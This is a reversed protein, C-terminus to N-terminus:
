ILKRSVFLKKFDDLLSYIAPVVFLTLITSTILGGIVAHAMPARLETGAGTALALPIMGFIMALSTMLIPRLRISGALALAQHKQMGEERKQKTFDILLIANKAVLGMLMIIGILSIISLQSEAIYLGLVAGIMAMPLAFMISIPDLFSEFQAAMVLFIFLIGIGLAVALSNFGEQMTQNMGGLSINVGAPREMENQLKKIYLNIFDGKAMGNVNASLEIQMKRDYRHLSQSSSTFTKSVVQNLPVMHNNAGPVYIGALSDLDKRQEDKMSVRLDYRDEGNDFKGVNIGNYFTRIIDGVLAVNVGLDAAKDRDVQLTVEPQGVKYNLAVDVAHPDQLMTNKAKLAFDLIDNFNEGTINFASDKQGSPGISSPLVAVEIGAINKLDDRIIQAIVKSSKIREKKDVLKVFVNTSAKKTTVYTYKVEKYLLLKNEIDITKNTIGELTLGSDMNLVVDIEGNDTSPVFDFGLLPVLTLSGLFLLIAIVTVLLRARLVKGLLKGYGKAMKDFNTNFWDLFSWLFFNSGMHNIKLMKSAMMPVITFSVFLSVIMSCAVTLGFEVFFRGIMGEVMAVPLFVAVVALTTALVALGIESTAEKAAEIASKGMHLHRVINEVVVIADDILLGVALSLAMLSLTNLSFNMVKMAIFTTIISIPLSTASIFTSEWEKLFIFVIIVALVCGEIITKNVEDVSDKIPISNDRVVDIKVNSPLSKQLNDIALKLDDAVAVTNAGSQKVIDIGIAERKEYRCLSEKEKIGDVVIAVERLRIETGNRKGVLVNNFDVPKQINANTRISIERAGDKVTGSPIEINDNKLGNIIESTTIGYAVMKEKDLKIEIERKSDGFLTVSGVGKVTYLRKTIVDEVFKSLQLNDMKGTVALSVIPKATMDLKVIVPDEIDNPLKNLISSIKDRVEQSAVDVSKDLVFEVMTVSVSESIKSTIHKVGSIQGVAEEVEKTVKSELQKPQAGKEVITVSVFPQDAQPMDNITLAKYSLVGVILLSLFVVSIFVPRKISINALFM